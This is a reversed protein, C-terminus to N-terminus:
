DEDPETHDATTRYRKKAVYIIKNKKDFVDPKTETQTCSEATEVKVEVKKITAWLPLKISSFGFGMKKKGGGTVLKDTAKKKSGEM